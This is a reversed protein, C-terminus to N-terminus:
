SAREEVASSLYLLLGIMVSNILLSSGGYSLFPLTVGTLPLLKTVGGMILIAQTSILLTIGAALYRHFPRQALMAVRMGRYALLGFM